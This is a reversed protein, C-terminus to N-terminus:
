ARRWGVQRAGTHVDIVLHGDSYGYDHTSFRECCFARMVTRSVGSTVYMLPISLVLLCVCSLAVAAVFVALSLIGVLVKIALYYLVVMFSRTSWNMLNLALRERELGSLGERTPVRTFIKEQPSTVFNHLEVDLKACVRVADLVICSVVIGCCCFPLLGISLVVGTGVIVFAVISLLANLFHFAFLKFIMGCCSDKEFYEDDRYSPPPLGYVIAGPPPPAQDLLPKLLPQEHEFHPAPEAYYPSVLQAMPPASPEHLSAYKDSPDQKM